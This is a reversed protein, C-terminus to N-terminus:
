KRFVSELRAAAGLPAFVILRDGERLVTDGTAVGAEEGRVVAAVVARRPLRADKLSKGVWKSGASVHIELLEGPVNQLLTTARINTGRVFRLIANMTTLYPSVARDLLRAENIIPVYEPNSVVAVGFAAGLKQALLCVIINNEDNGTSAVIATHPAIGIEELVLRDLANGAIVMGKELSASCDHARAADEEIVIVKKDTRELHRALRLGLDGGGAVLVKQVPTRDPRVVDLFARVDDPKGVCYITDKVEFQLDGHPMLLRERRMVAILRVAHLVDPRPFHRLPGALLHSGPPVDLGVAQIRGGVMRVLEKAGGMSLVSLVERACEDHENVVLGIGLRSLHELHQRTTLEDNSVRVATHQAGAAHAFVAALINVEDRDTVAAVLGARAVGAQELIRPSTGNGQITQVDLESSIDELPQARHDVLVVDHKEECLRAALRQGADGAGIIV